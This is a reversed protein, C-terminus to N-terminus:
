NFIKGAVWEIGRILYTLGIDALFMYISFFILAVIVVVTTNIVEQQNPWTVKKMELVVEHIFQRARGIPGENRVPASSQEKDDNLEDMGIEKHAGTSISAAM